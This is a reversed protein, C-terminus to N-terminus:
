NNQRDAVSTRLKQYGLKLAEFVKEKFSTDLEEEVNELLATANVKTGNFLHESTLELQAQRLLEEVGQDTVKQDKNEIEKVKSFVEAVKDEIIKKEFLEEKANNSAIKAQKILSKSTKAINKYIPQKAIEEAQVIMNKKTIIPKEIVVFEEKLKNKEIHKSSELVLPKSEKPLKTEETHVIEPLSEKQKMFLSGMFVVGIISAAIAVWAYQKKPRSKAEEEDLKEQLRNWSDSSPKITRRDLKQKIEEDLKLPAM